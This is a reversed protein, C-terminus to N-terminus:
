RSDEETKNFSQNDPLVMQEGRAFACVDSNAQMRDILGLAVLSLGGSVFIAGLAAGSKIFGKADAEIEPKSLTGGVRVMKAISSASIGFGKRPKPTVVFNLSEEPFTITGSGLLTVNNTKMALGDRTKAKGDSIDLRIAGCEVEVLTNQQIFPNISSILNTVIDGGVADLVKYQIKSQNIDLEIVGSGKELLSGPSNGPGALNLRADITGGLFLEHDALAQISEVPFRTARIEITGIGEASVSMRGDLEGSAAMGGFVGSVSGQDSNIVSHMDSLQVSHNIFSKAQVKITGDIRSMWDPFLPEKTFLQHQKEAEVFLSKLDLFDSSSVVNIRSRGESDSQLNLEAHIDSDGVQYDGTITIKGMDLKLDLDADVAIGSQVLDTVPLLAALEPAKLALGLKEIRLPALQDIGGTLHLESQLGFLSADINEIRPKDGDLYVELRGDVRDIKPLEFSEGISAQNEFDGTLNVTFHGALPALTAVNGAIDLNGGPWDGNLRFNSISWERSNESQIQFASNVVPIEESMEKFTSLSPFLALVDGTSAELTVTLDANLEGGLNNLAGTMVMSHDKRDTLVMIQRIHWANNIDGTLIGNFRAPGIQPLQVGYSQGVLPVDDIEGTLLLSLSEPRSLDAFEGVGHLTVGANTATLESINVRYIKNEVLLSGTVNVQDLQLPLKYDEDATFEPRTVGIFSIEGWQESGINRLYGSGSFDALTGNSAVLIDALSYGEANKLLAATAEIKGVQPVSRNLLMGFKALNTIEMTLPLPQNWVGDERIINGSTRLSASDTSLSLSELMLELKDSQGQIQAKILAHPRIVSSLGLSLVTLDMENDAHISLDIEALKSLKDVKGAVEMPIGHLSFGGHIEALEMTSATGPQILRAYANIQRADIPQSLFLTSLYRLRDINVNLAVDLGRWGLVDDIWGEAELVNVAAIRARISARSPIRDFWSRLTGISGQFSLATQEVSGFAEIAMPANHGSNTLTVTDLLIEWDRKPHLYRIVSDKIDVQQLDLWAPLPVPKVPGSSFKDIEVLNFQNENRQEIWLEAGLLAIRNVSIKGGFLELLSIDIEIREATFASAHQAWDANDYRVDNAFITLDIGPRIGLRGDISLNRGTAKFVADDLSKKIEKQELLISGALPVIFAILLGALLLEVTWKILTKM